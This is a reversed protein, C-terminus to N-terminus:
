TTVVFTDTAVCTFLYRVNLSSPSITYVGTVGNFTQSISSTTLGQPSSGNAQTFAASLGPVNIGSLDIVASPLSTTDLVADLRNFTNPKNNWQQFSNTGAPTVYASLSSDTIAWGCTGGVFQFTLSDGSNTLFPKGTTDGSSGSVIGMISVGDDTVIICSSVIIGSIGGRSITVTVPPDGISPSAPLTVTLYSSQVQSLDVLVNSVGSTQAFAYSGPTQDAASLNNFADRILTINTNIATNKLTGFAQV